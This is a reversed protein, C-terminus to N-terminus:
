KLDTHSYRKGVELKQEGVSNKFGSEYSKRHEPHVPPRFPHKREAEGFGREQWYPHEHEKM